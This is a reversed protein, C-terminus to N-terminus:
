KTKNLEALYKAREALYKAKAKESLERELDNFFTIFENCMQALQPITKVEKQYFSKTTEVKPDSTFLRELMSDKKELSEKILPVVIASFSRFPALFKDIPIVLNDRSLMVFALTAAAGQEETTTQADLSKQLESKFIEIAAITKVADEKTQWATVMTTALKPDSAIGTSVLGMKITGLKPKQVEAKVQVKADKAPAVYNICCSCTITLMLFYKSFYHM